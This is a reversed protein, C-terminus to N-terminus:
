ARGEGRTGRAKGRREDGAATYPTDGEAVAEGDAPETLTWDKPSYDTPAATLGQLAAHVAAIFDPVQGPQIANGGVYATVISVTHDIISGAEPESRYLESSAAEATLPPLAEAFPLDATGYSPSGSFAPADVFASETIAAATVMEHSLAHSGALARLFTDHYQAIVTALLVRRGHITKWERGNIIERAGVADNVTRNFYRSLTQRGHADGRFWGERMGVSMIVAAFAPNMASDPNRVLDVGVYAGARRYNAEWTLQVYGRGYYPYYRLHRRRWDESLWYAERVPQMTRGTEHFATALMYALWRIDDTPTQREWADLIANMGDVQSQSLGGFLPRVGDFFTRRDIAMKEELRAPNLNSCSILLKRSL